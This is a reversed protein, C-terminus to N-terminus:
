LGGAGIARRAVEVAQKTVTDPQVAIVIFDARDLGAAEQAALAAAALEATPDKSLALEGELVTATGAPNM